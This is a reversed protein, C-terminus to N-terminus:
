TIKTLPAGCSKLYKFLAESNPGIVLCYDGKQIIRVDPDPKFFKFSGQTKFLFNALDDFIPLEELMDREDKVEMGALGEAPHFCNCMKESDVQNKLLGQATKMELKLNEKM